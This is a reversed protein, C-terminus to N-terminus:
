GEVILGRKDKGKLEINYSTNIIRSYLREGVRENLEAPSMNSTYINSKGNSIRTDIISLLNEIEFETGVKTGIDDWIVLDCEMVNNKIFTIDENKQTINDKLMIFFKPVNIFLVKCKIETKHWIKNIYTQALRLAWSTKGNGCNQSYLYLNSGSQIFTEITNQIQKLQTFSTKDTGDNDIRLNIHKRQSLSFMGNNFLADTKFLKLCFEDPHCNNSKYVNCVDHLYCKSPDIIM